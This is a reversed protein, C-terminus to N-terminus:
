KMDGSHTTKLANRKAGDGGLKRSGKPPWANVRQPIPKGRTTCTEGALRKARAIMKVDRKTKALHHPGCLPEINEAAHKGQLGLALIHDFELGTMVECDLRACQRGTRSLAADKWSQPIAKRAEVSRDPEAILSVAPKM